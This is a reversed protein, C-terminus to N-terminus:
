AGASAPESVREIAAGLELTDTVQLAEILTRGMRGAAGTVAVRISM